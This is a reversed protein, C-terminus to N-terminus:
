NKQFYLLRGTQSYMYKSLFASLGYQSIEDPMQVWYGRKWFYFKLTRSGVGLDSFLILFLNTKGDQDFVVVVQQIFNKNKTNGYVMGRLGVMDKPDYLPHPYRYDSIIDKLAARYEPRVNKVLSVGIVNEKLQDSQWTQYNFKGSHQNSFSVPDSFAVPHKKFACSSALFLVM